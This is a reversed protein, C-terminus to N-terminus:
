RQAVFVRDRDIAGNYVLTPRSADPLLVTLTLQQQSAAQHQFILRYHWRGGSDQTAADPVTYTFHLAYISGAPMWFYGAWMQRGPEDSANLRLDVGNFGDYDILRSHVPTYVRLYDTYYWRDFLYPVMGPNANPGFDYAITLHHTATGRADITVEDTYQVTMFLNAKNGTTNSDVATIADGPGRALANEFGYAKILREATPNSLYVQLEKTALSALLVQAVAMLQRPTATHLKAMFARGLLATFRQHLTTLQDASALRAGIFEARTETYRRIMAELNDGTVTVGYQPLSVPGIAEMARQIVPVTLTVVGQAEIGSEQQLLQLANRASTPFDFSLNSDRLAYGSFPWWFYKAPPSRPGVRQIYPVDLGYTDNLTFPQMRGSEMTLVGYSGAFGGTSRMEGRDLLQILFREPGHFGLLTPALQLWAHVTPWKALLQNLEDRQAASVMSAPIASLDASQALMVATNFRGVATEFDQVIENMVGTTLLPMVAGSVSTFFGGHLLPQALDLARLLALGGLSAEDAADILNTASSVPSGAFPVAGVLALAGGSVEQRAHAFDHEALALQSEISQMVASDPMTLHKTLPGALAEITRLHRMGDSVSARAATYQQYMQAEGIVVVCPLAQLSALLVIFLTRHAKRQDVLWNRLRSGARELSQRPQGLQRLSQM